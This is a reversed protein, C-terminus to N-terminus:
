RDAYKIIEKAMEMYESAARSTKKYAMVPKSNDQSWEVNSDIRIISELL